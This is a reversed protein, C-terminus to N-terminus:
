KLMIKKFTLIPYLHKTEKESVFENKTELNKPRWTLVYNDFFIRLYRNHFYGSILKNNWFRTAINQM